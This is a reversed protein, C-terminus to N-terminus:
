RCTRRCEAQSKRSGVQFLGELVRLRRKKSACSSANAKRLMCCVQRALRVGGCSFWWAIELTVSGLCSPATPWGARPKTHSVSGILFGSQDGSCSSGRACVSGSPASGSPTDGPGVASRAPAGLVWFRPPPLTLVCPQRVSHPRALSFLPGKTLPWATRRSKPARTPAGCNGLVPARPGRPPRRHPVSYGRWGPWARYM